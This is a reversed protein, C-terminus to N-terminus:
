RPVAGRLTWFAGTGLVYSIISLTFALRYSGSLDFIMGAGWSGLAAGLGSGITIVGLISGLNGGPFLDATKATIMPGRAGWTLGFLCAHLWLLLHDGPGTILMGFAVGVISVGYTVVASVERGIVDSLIGTLIVGPTSMLAGMGLVSAAYLPDFGRDVAFAIQHLSVFFSGMGTFMYVMFLLWFRYTVIAERLTWSRTPRAPGSASSATRGKTEAGRFLFTMPVILVTLLVTQVLYASRWSIATILFQAFPASIARGFGNAAQVVAFAMGRRRVFLKSLLPVFAVMGLCNAGVTMVVGYLLVVQWLAHAFSSGLLGVGLLAAGIMVVRRTGLRDVLLGVLPASAGSVLQSVSYAISAEARTWHFEQIYALLFVTYAHMMSAGISFTIFASGLMLWAHRSPEPTAHPVTASMNAVTHVPASGHLAPRQMAPPRVAKGGRM